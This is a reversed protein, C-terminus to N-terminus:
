NYRMGELGLQRRLLSMQGIHYSDHQALFSVMGLATGDTGPFKVGERNLAAEDLERLVQLMHSSIGDWASLIVNLPPLPGVEDLTRGKELVGQLPNELPRGLKSCLFHRSDSLHAALFALSNSDPTLRRNALTDDVGALCNRLLRTNLTLIAWVSELRPVM